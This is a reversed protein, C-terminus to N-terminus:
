IILEELFKRRYKEQEILQALKERNKESPWAKNSNFYSNAIKWFKEPYTFMVRLVEMEEDAIRRVRDYETLIKEGLAINWNNKEMTKKLYIYLDYIQINVNMRIFNVLVADNEAFIFNHYQSNGHCIQKKGLSMERLKQYVDRDLKEEASLAQEYFNDIENKIQFEFDSKGKLKEVYRKVKQLERNHKQFTDRLDKGEPILDENEFIGKMDTTYLHYRALVAVGQLVDEEDEPNCERHEYWKKVIYSGGDPGVSVFEGTKNKIVRDVELGNKELHEQLKEVVELKGKSSEYEKLLFLGRDTDCYYSGRVRRTGKIKFEYQELVPLAKENM